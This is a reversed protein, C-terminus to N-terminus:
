PGVAMTTTLRFAYPGGQSHVPVTFAVVLHQIYTGQGYGPGAWLVTRPSDLTGLSGVSPVLPGSAWDLDQGAVTMPPSASVLELGALVSSTQDSGSPTPAVTSAVTLRWGAGSGSSDDVTIALDAAHTVTTDSHGTTTLIVQGLGASRTGASVGASVQGAATAPPTSWSPGLIGGVIGVICAAFGGTTIRAM